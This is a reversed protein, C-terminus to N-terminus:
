AEVKRGATRGPSYNANKKYLNEYYEAETKKKKAIKKEFRQQNATIRDFIDKISFDTPSEVKHYIGAAKAHQYRLDEDTDVAAGRVVESINLSAIMEPTITYPADILVDDVFQSSRLSCCFHLVTTVNSCHQRSASFASRATVRFPRM